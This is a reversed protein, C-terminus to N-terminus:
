ANRMPPTVELLLTSSHFSRISALRKMMNLCNESMKNKQSFAREGKQKGNCLLCLTTQISNCGKTLIRQSTLELLALICAVWDNRHTGFCFWM